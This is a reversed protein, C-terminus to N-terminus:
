ETKASSDGLHELLFAWQDAIQEIAMWTPTGAGHGARTEVRLLIPAACGQDRQLVAAFKYSHWPVVRDDHDGTTILTAPYCTGAKSNHVPSYAFLAAFEDANESLGFDSGWARANASSTHYRLMDLVGVAPLVAGFLEPRQLMAAAVLLGGNSAGQAAIKGAQTYNNAILYEAAAIFDDFVNQKNLKTGARHWEEGYEGGGRLNPIALIGGQELWVMRGVSFSPTLSVNFGGYGYLLLPNNGDLETDQHRVIFMPLQTGDKSNYFVQETIFENLAANVETQQHLRLRGAAIDYHYIAGPQTFSTLQFFTELHDADGTFGSVTGIEPLDLQQLHHGHASYIHVVSQADQLYSVFLRGGVYSVDDITEPREAVVEQWHEPEPRLIDLAIVRGNPAQQTTHFYFINGDAAIFNYRGDWNNLLPQWAANDETLDLLHIANAFFGQTLNALLFRGDNTVMPYPNVANNAAVSYILQDTSQESGLAHFYIAVPQQDDAQGQENLPYRSYYFGTEDPLWSINTFKTGRIVSNVTSGDAVRRVRFEVWDSGGDTVGYAVYNAEPSVYARALAVTGDASFQNPNILVRPPQNLRDTVYLVSQNQLGDNRYFFYRNAVRFPTGLREYNWLTTLREKLQERAPLAQLYPLSLNNQAQVWARVEPSQQQELWRYPDAVTVGHYDDVQELTPTDPYPMTPEHVTTETITSCASLLVISAALATSFRLGM